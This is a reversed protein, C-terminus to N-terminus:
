QEYIWITLNEEDMCKRGGGELKQRSSKAAQTKDLSDKWERVHKQEVSSTWILQGSHFLNMSFWLFHM